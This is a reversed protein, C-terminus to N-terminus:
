RLNSVTGNTATVQRTHGRASTAWPTTTLQQWVKRRLVRRWRAPRPQLARLQSSEWGRAPDLAIVAAFPGRGTLAGLRQAHVRLFHAAAATGSDGLGMVVWFTRHTASHRGKYILGFDLGERAEFVEGGSLRFAAPQRVAVLRPECTDLIQTAKYHPGVAIAPESWAQRNPEGTVVRLSLRRNSGLLLQQLEGLAQVDLADYVEPVKVWKHVTLGETPQRPDAPARSFLENGPVFMGRLCCAVEHAGSGLPHILARVAPHLARRRAVLWALLLTLSVAAGLLVPMPLEGWAPLFLDLASLLM